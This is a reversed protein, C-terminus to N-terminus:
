PFIKFFHRYYFDVAIEAYIYQTGRYKSGFPFARMSIWKEVESASTHFGRNYAAAFFQIKETLTAFNKQFKHSVITYFAKLYLMQWQMDKLRRIREQRIKKAETQSYKSLELYNILQNDIVYSEMQEVFSPKMQFRGISFDAYKQGYNVYLLELSATEMMNQVESFRVMEPFVAPIITNIDVQNDALQTKFLLQNTELFKLANQYPVAFAKEYELPSQAKSYIPFTSFILCTIILNIFLRHM